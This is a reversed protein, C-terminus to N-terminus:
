KKGFIEFEHRRDAGVFPVSRSDADSVGRGRYGM